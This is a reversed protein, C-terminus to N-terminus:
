YTLKYEKQKQVDIYFQNEESKGYDTKKGEQLFPSSKPGDAITNWLVSNKKRLMNALLIRVDLLLFTYNKRIQPDFWRPDQLFLAYVEDETKENRKLFDEYKDIKNIYDLYSDNYIKQM